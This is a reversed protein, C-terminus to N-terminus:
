DVKGLHIFRRVSRSLWHLFLGGWIPVVREEGLSSLPPAVNQVLKISENPSTAASDCEHPTQGTFKMVHGTVSADPALANTRKSGLASFEQRSM